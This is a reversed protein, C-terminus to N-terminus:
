VFIRLIFHSIIDVILEGVVLQAILIIIIVQVLHVLISLMESFLDKRITNEPLEGITLLFSKWLCTMQQKTLGEDSNASMMITSTLSFIWHNWNDVLNKTNIMKGKLKPLETCGDCNVHGVLDVIAQICLKKLPLSIQGPVIITKDTANHKGFCFHLFTVLITDIFKDIKNQFKELLHWWCKFKALATEEAKANNSRLPIILLKIRKNINSENTETSFSDILVTWCEFAKCRNDVDLKFAAEVVPLMSNIPTGISGMAQTIQHKLLKIYVMWVRHWIGSKHILLNKM